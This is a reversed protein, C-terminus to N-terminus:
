IFASTNLVPSISLFVWTWPPSLPTSV